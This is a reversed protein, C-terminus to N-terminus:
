KVVHVSTSDGRQVCSRIGIHPRRVEVSFEPKSCVRRERLKGPVDSARM